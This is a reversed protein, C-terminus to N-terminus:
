KRNLKYEEHFFDYTLSNDTSSLGAERVRAVDGGACFAKTGEGELILM